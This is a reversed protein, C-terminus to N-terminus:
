YSNRDERVLKVAEEPPLKLITRIIEEFERLVHEQEIEEVKREIFKRIEESWSIVDRLRDMREKLERPIRICVVSL